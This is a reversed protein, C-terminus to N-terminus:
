IIKFSTGDIKLSLSYFKLLVEYLYKTDLAGSSENISHMAWQALGIDLSPLSVQSLSISGLTGGGRLDSRNTYNQFPVGALQCYEKFVSASFGDTIYSQNANYKIVVGKNVEVLNTPDSKDVYNPHVGHANDASILFSKALAQYHKVNSLNLYYSIKELTEKLFSSGAGQRSSSGVEENDFCTFVIIENNNDAELFAKFSGYAMQLDDLQRSAIFENNLGWFYGKTTPYLFLEFEIIEDELVNLTSAILKEIFGEKYSGSIPLLHQQPNLPNSSNAEKNLHIALSPIMLITEEICFLKSKIGNNDKLFVRGALSLPRDFWTAMLVGGYPEVNLLSYGNKKCFYNPKVKFGPCDSHSAVIKYKIDDINNPVKFAIISSDNRTLFYNRNAKLEFDKEEKLEIFGKEILDEKFNNVVHFMSPSLNIFKLLDGSINKSM